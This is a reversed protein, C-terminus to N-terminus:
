PMKAPAADGSLETTSSASAPAAYVATAAGSSDIRFPLWVLAVRDIEVDTKRPKLVVEELLVRDPAYKDVLGALTKDREIELSKKEDLLKDLSAQATAQQGRESAVSRFAPDLSRRRGPLGKGLASLVTDVIVWLMTGIRAFFQWKQSSVRAEASKIRADLAALKKEFQQEQKARETEKATSLLPEIRKCFEERSEGSKSSAGVLGCSLIKLESERYLHEELQRRFASYSRERQLESPLEAFSASDDPSKETDLRQASETANEWIDEPSASLATQLLHCERWVDIGVAARTFHVKGSGLLGPRYELTYGDPVRDVITLFAEAIGAPLIPRRGAQKVSGTPTSAENATSPAAAGAFDRRRPDMLVKIQDRTLPGRLYSMAWRTQFVTPEDDNVNNM